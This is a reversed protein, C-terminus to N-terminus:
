CDPANLWEALRGSPAGMRIQVSLWDSVIRNSQRQAIPASTGVIEISSGIGEGAGAGVSIAIWIGSVIDTSKACQLVM